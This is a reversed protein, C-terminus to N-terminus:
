SIRGFEKELQRSSFHIMTPRGHPCTRPQKAQELQRILERMEEDRLQQGARIASHCALSEAIKEEWLAPTSKDAFSGLLTSVIEIVDAKAALVPVTRILYSRDGFPEITFGFQALIEKNVGLTEEERPSLEITITQLLGQVEVERKAWQASIREYLIREHAAHQDILYFGDPGEAVIYTNAIQGLVRLVPLDSAHLATIPVPEKEEIMWPDPRSWSAAPFPKSVPKAIPTRALTRKVADKVIAFIAQGHRFKVQAKSPHVNVDIEEAPLSLDIIAVPHKGDMLLGHYAMETARMLLPSRIWRRNVFFSIRNRDSRSLSPPSVLGSTKGFADGSEVELMRQAIELGYIQNVVDRLDGNGMTQLSLRKDLFLKFKVEPFALAYQSLINAIYSNESNVSKLFKLRAPFYHFLRRVAITTGQARSRSECCAVDGKKLQMYTGAVDSAAKTLIEVGAVAAISFLAEGRFGLSSISELDVLSSIKSTAYRRFSLEVESAPIGLGNDAVKILDVGGRQVEVSIQNAEADLSNEVLEKVVSAPREIVEGAAIKSIVEPALIKIHVQKVKCTKTYKTLLEFQSM